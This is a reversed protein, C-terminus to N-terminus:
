PLTSNTLFLSSVFEAKRSEQAFNSVDAPFLVFFMTNQCSFQCSVSHKKM